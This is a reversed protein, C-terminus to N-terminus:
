IRRKIYRRSFIYSCDDGFLSNRMLGIPFRQPLQRLIYCHQLMLAAKASRIRAAWFGSSSFRQDVDHSLRSHTKIAASLFNSQITKEGGGISIFKGRDYPQVARSSAVGDHRVRRLKKGCISKSHIHEM